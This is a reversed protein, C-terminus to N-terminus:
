RRIDGALFGAVLLAIAGLVFVTASNTAAGLLLAVFLSGTLHAANLKHKATM